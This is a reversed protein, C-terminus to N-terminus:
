FCLIVFALRKFGEFVHKLEDSDQNKSYVVYKSIKLNDYGFDKFFYVIKFNYYVLFNPVKSLNFFCVM